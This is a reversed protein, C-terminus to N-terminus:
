IKRLRFQFTGEKDDHTSRIRSRTVALNEWIIQVVDGTIDHSLSAIMQEASSVNQGNPISVINVEWIGTYVDNTAHNIMVVTYDNFFTLQTNEYVGTLNDKTGFWPFYEVEDFQWTGFLRKETITPKNTTCSVILGLFLFPLLKKM